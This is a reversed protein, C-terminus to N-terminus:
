HNPERDHAREEAFGLERPCISGGEEYAEMSELLRGVLRTSSLSSFYDGCHTLGARASHLISRCMGLRLTPVTTVVVYKYSTLSSRISSPALLAVVVYGKVM